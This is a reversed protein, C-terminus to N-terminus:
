KTIGCVQTSKGEFICVSTWNNSMGWLFNKNKFYFCLIYLLNKENCLLFGSNSLSFVIMQSTCYIYLTAEKYPWSWWGASLTEGWFYSVQWLCRQQSGTVLAALAATLDLGFCPVALSPIATSFTVKKWPLYTESVCASVHGWYLFFFNLQDYGTASIEAFGLYRDYQVELFRAGAKFHKLRKRCCCVFWIKCTWETNLHPLPYGIVTLVMKSEHCKM